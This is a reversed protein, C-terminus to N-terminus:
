ALDFIGGLAKENVVNFGWEGIIMRKEADGTKALPVQKVPDLWRFEIHENDLLFVDRDRAFRDMVVQIAGFDSLYVDAAGVITSQGSSPAAFRQEAIGTFASFDVKRSPHMLAWNPKGGEQYCSQLVTKLQTEAFSRTTGDTRTDTATSTYTPDAGDTAAHDTNTKLYALLAATRRPTSDNGAAAGQNFLSIAEIDRKLESLRKAVQYQMEGGRGARNVREHTRSVIADKRSIQTYNGLRTTPSAAAFSTLDDGEVVANDTDVADLSDVQWEYYTNQPTPGTGANSQLPCDEPSINSILDSLDERIGVGDYTSYTNAIQAM